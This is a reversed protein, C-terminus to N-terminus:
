KRGNDNPKGQELPITKLHEVPKMIEIPPDLDYITPDAVHPHSCGVLSLLTLAIIKNRLM